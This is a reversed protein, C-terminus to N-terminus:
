YHAASFDRYMPRALPVREAGGTLHSDNEREGRQLVIASEPWTRPNRRECLLAPYPGSRSARGAPSGVGSEARQPRPEAGPARELATGGRLAQLAPGVYENIHSWSGTNPKWPASIQM